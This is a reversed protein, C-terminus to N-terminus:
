QCCHDSATIQLRIGYSCQNSRACCNPALNKTIYQSNQDSCTESKRISSDIKPLKDKLEVILREATRKGVGPLKILTTSDNDHICRIFDSTDIGSLLTLALKPGVGNVKILTRFFERENSDNFGYLLQADERVVFHTYLTAETGIEPLRYFVSMPAEVEYGVGGAEILLLPANKELVTGRLRGIM